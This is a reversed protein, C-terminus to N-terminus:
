GYNEHFHGEQRQQNFVEVKIIVTGLKPQKDIQLHSLEGGWAQCEKKGPGPMVSLDPVKMEAPLQHAM